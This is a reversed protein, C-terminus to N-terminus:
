YTHSEFHRQQNCLSLVSLLYGLPIFMVGLPATRELGKLTYLLVVVCFDKLAVCVVFLLLAKEKLVVSSMCCNSFLKERSMVNEGTIFAYFM